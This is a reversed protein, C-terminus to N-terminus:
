QYQPFGSFRLLKKAMAATTWHGLAYDVMARRIKSLDREGLAIDLQRPVEEPTQCHFCRDREALWNDRRWPPYGILLPIAGSAVAEYNRLPEAGAASAPCLVVKAQRLLRFYSTSPINIRAVNALLYKKVLRSRTAVELMKGRAPNSGPYGIFLVDFIRELGQPRDLGDATELGNFWRRPAAYTLHHPKGLYRFEPHMEKRFYADVRLEPRQVQSCSDWPEVYAVRGGKRLRPLFGRVWEWPCGPGDWKNSDRGTTFQATIVLLDFGCEDADLIRGNRRGGITTCNNPDNGYCREPSFETGGDFVVEDCLDAHLNPSGVADVVNEEGLVEQLGDWLGLALFDVEDRRAVYLVKM